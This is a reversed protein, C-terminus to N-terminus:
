KIKVKKSKYIYKAVFFGIWYMFMLGLFDVTKEIM